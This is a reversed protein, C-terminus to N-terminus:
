PFSCGPIHPQGGIELGRPCATPHPEEEDANVLWVERDSYYRLLEGRRTPDAERAWVVPSRDIDAANYIWPEHYDHAETYRVLVLHKGGRRELMQEIQSRPTDEQSVLEPALGAGIVLASCSALCIVVWWRCLAAGVPKGRWRVARM